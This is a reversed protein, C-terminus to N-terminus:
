GAHGYVVALIDRGGADLLARGLATGIQAADAPAGEAEQCVLTSGDPSVVIGRVQMHGDRITAHAGVPVQCRYVTM